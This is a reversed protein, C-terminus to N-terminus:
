LTTLLSQGLWIVPSFSIRVERLDHELTEKMTECKFILDEKATVQSQLELKERESAGYLDRLDEYQKAISTREIKEDDLKARIENQEKRAANLAQDLTRIKQNAENLEVRLNDRADEHVKVQLRYEEYSKEKRAIENELHEIRQRLEHTEEYRLM